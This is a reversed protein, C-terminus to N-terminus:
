LWVLQTQIRVQDGVLELVQSIQQGTKHRLERTVAM